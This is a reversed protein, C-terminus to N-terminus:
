VFKKKAVRDWGGAISGSGKGDSRRQQTYQIGIRGYNLTIDETPFDDGRHANLSSIIVEELKIEMYKQQDGGARSIHIVMSKFHQGSACAEFLKPSARDLYKALHVDPCSAGGATAGGASSATSSVSQSVGYHFDTLEIWDKHNADLAEGPVGEIKLYADFSM